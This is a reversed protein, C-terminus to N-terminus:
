RVYWQKPKTSKTTANARGHDTIFPKLYFMSLIMNGCGDIIPAM